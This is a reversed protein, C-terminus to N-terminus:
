LFNQGHTNTSGPTGARKMVKQSRHMRDIMFALGQGKSYAVSCIRSPDATGFHTGSFMDIGLAAINSDEFNVFAYGLNLRKSSKRPVYVASYAGSFGRADLIARVGAEDLEYSIRQLMLTTSQSESGARGRSLVASGSTAREWLQALPPITICIEQAVADAVDRSDSTNSSADQPSHRKAAALIERPMIHSRMAGIDLATEPDEHDEEESSDVFLDGAIELRRLSPRCGVHDALHAAKSGGDEARWACRM